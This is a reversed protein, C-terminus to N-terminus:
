WLWGLREVGVKETALNKQDKKGMCGTQFSVVILKTAKLEVKQKGGLSEVLEGEVAVAAGTAVTGDQIQVFDPTHKYTSSILRDNNFSRGKWSILRTRLM